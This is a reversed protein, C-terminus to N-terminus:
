PKEKEATAQAPPSPLALAKAADNAANQIWEVPSEGRLGDRAGCDETWRDTHHFAKGANAVASLIRDIAEVGTPAFSYYYAEM